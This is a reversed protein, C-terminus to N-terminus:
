SPRIKSAVIYIFVGSYNLANQFGLDNVGSNTYDLESAYLQQVIFLDDPNEGESKLFAIQKIM